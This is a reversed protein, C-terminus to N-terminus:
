EVEIKVVVDAGLLEQLRRLLVGRVARVERKWAEGSARIRLIGDPQWTTETARALAAGVTMRWAFAVKAPSAPQSNLVQKLAGTETTSLSHM